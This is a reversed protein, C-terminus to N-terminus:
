LIGERSYINTCHHYFLLPFRSGAGVVWNNPDGKGITSNVITQNSVILYFSKYGPPVGWTTMNHSKCRGLPVYAPALIVQIFFLATIVADVAGIIAASAGHAELSPIWTIFAWITGLIAGIGAARTALSANTDYPAHHLEPHHQITKWDPFNTFIAVFLPIYAIFRIGWSIGGLASAGM